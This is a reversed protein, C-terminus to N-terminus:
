YTNTGIGLADMIMIILLNARDAEDKTEWVNAVSLPVLLNKLTTKYNPEEGDFTEGQLRDLLEAFLPSAKNEMFQFLVDKGTQSGFKGSNLETVKGTKTSKTIPKQGLLLPALRSVLTVLSGMGGAVDFRTNGIRIKSFDASRSDKEVSGPWLVNATALLGGIGALTKVLNLAAQKRVFPTVGPQFQHATLVDIHSKLNRPSFMTVNLVNAASEAGGLHGRGTLANVMKAISEIEKPSNINVGQSEALRIYKKFLDVRMRHLFGSYAADSAKFFKGLIPVMEPSRTPFAEEIAGVALKSKKMLEYMPDSIIEANLLDMAEKGQFTRIIDGFQKPANKAFQVPNSFVTKIGQRLTASIDISSKLSKTIGGVEMVAKKPNFLLDLPSVREGKIKLDNVYNNLEVTRIGYELEQPTPKGDIGRRPSAEMKTRADTAEKALRSIDGAEKDTVTVGLKTNVLDNLFAEENEPTLVNQMREVKDLLAKKVEPKLGAVTKAWTILGQQQNKLLLKSEFLANTMTAYEEGVLNKFFENREKSSITSLQEPNIEGSKLAQRFRNALNNPLCIKPM